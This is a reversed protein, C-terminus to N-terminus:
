GQVRRGGLRWLTLASAVALFGFIGAFDPWMEMVGVGKLTIGRMIVLFYRLPLLYSIYQFIKPMAFIPFYMGSLIMSPLMYFITMQSAQIQNQSISSIFFGFILSAVIFILLAAFFLKLSGAIVMGFWYVSVVMILSVAGISIIGFPILKAVVIEFGTLPTVLLQDFTGGERERIVAMASQMITLFTLLYGVLGPIMFFIADLNPNYLLRAKLNVPSLSIISQGRESAAGGQLGTGFYQAAILRSYNAAQIATPPISGDIVILIRAARGGGSEIDKGFGAPIVIGMFCKGRDILGRLEEYNSTKSKLKFYKTNMFQDIIKRSQTTQDLDLVATGLDKIDTKAAYTFLVLLVMPYVVLAVVTRRDRKLEIFEKRVFELIRFFM